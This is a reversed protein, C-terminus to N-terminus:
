LVTSQPMRQVLIPMLLAAQVAQIIVQFTTQSSTDQLEIAKLISM